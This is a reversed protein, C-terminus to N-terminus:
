GEGYEQCEHSAAAKADSAYDSRTRAAEGTLDAVGVSKDGQEVLENRFTWLELPAKSKGAIFASGALTLAWKGSNRHAQDQGVFQWHKLKPLNQCQSRTLGLEDVHKHVAGVANAEALTIMINVLARTLRHKYTVLKAGCAPCTEADSKVAAALDSVGSAPRGQDFLSGRPPPPQQKYHETIPEGREKAQRAVEAVHM